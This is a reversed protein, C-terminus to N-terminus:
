CGGGDVVIVEVEEHTQGLVTEIAGGVFEVRDHTPLLTSVLTMPM